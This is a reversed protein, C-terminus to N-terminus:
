LDRFWISSSGARDFAKAYAAVAATNFHATGVRARRVGAAALRQMAETMVARALWGVTLRMVGCPRLGRSALPQSCKSLPLETYDTLWARYHKSRRNFTAM